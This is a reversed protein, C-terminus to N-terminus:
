TEPHPNIHCDIRDGQVRLGRAHRQIHYETFTLSPRCLSRPSVLAELIANYYFKYKDRQRQMNNYDTQNLTGEQPQWAAAFQIQKWSILPVLGLFM